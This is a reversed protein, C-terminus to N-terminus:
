PTNCSTGECGSLDGETHPTDSVPCRNFYLQSLVSHGSAPWVVQRFPFFVPRCSLSYSFYSELFCLRFGVFDRSKNEEEERGSHHFAAVKRGM